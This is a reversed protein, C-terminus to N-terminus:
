ADAPRPLKPERDAWGCAARFVRCTLLGGLPLAVAMFAAFATIDFATASGLFQNSVPTNGPNTIAGTLMAVGAGVTNAVGCRILVRQELEGPPGGPWWRKGM